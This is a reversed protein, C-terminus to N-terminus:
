HKYASKKEVRVLDIIVAIIGIVVFSIILRPTISPIFYSTVIVVFLVVILGLTMYKAYNNQQKEWNQHMISNLMKNIDKSLRAFANSNKVIYDSAGYRISKIALEINESGSLMLIPLDPKVRKIRKLIELGNKAAPNIDNLRYDLIVIDPNIRQLQALSEEGTNFTYFNYGTYKGLQHEIAKCYMPDDDVILIKVGNKQSTNQPKEPAVVTEMNNNKIILGNYM